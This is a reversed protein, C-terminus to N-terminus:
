QKTKGKLIIPEGGANMTVIGYIISPTLCSVALILWWILM